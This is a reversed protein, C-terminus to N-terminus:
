ARSRAKMACGASALTRYADPGSSAVVKVVVEVVGVAGLPGGGVIESTRVTANVGNEAV